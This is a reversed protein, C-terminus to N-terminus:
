RGTSINGQPDITVRVSSGRSFAQGTWNGFYTPQLPRVDTFGAAAIRDRAQQETMIGGPLPQAGPAPVAARPTPPSGRYSAPFPPPRLSEPPVLRNSPNGSAAPDSAGPSGFGRLNRAGPTGQPGTGFSGVTGSRDATQGRAPLPAVTASVALALVIAARGRQPM